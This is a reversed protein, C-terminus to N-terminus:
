FPSINPLCSSYIIYTHAFSYVTYYAVLVHGLQTYYDLVPSKTALAVTNALGFHKIDFEVATQQSMIVAPCYCLILFRTYCTLESYVLGRFRLSRYCTSYISPKALMTIVNTMEWPVQQAM